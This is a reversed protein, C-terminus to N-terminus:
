INLTITFLPNPLELIRILERTTIVQLKKIIDFIHKTLTKDRPFNWFEKLANIVEVNFFEGDMYVKGSSINYFTYVKELVSTLSCVV